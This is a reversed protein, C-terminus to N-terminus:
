PTEPVEKVVLDFLPHKLLDIVLLEEGSVQFLNLVHSKFVIGEAVFLRVLEVEMCRTLLFISSSQHHNVLLTSLDVLEKELQHWSLLPCIIKEEAVSKTM